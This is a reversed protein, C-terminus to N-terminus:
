NGDYVAFVEFVATNGLHDSSATVIRPQVYYRGAVSLDGAETFYVIKGDSPNLGVPITGTKTLITGDPKKIKIQKTSADTLDIFTNVELATGVDGVYAKAM